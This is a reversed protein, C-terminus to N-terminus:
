AWNSDGLTIYWNSIDGVVDKPIDPSQVLVVLVRKWSWARGLGLRGSFSDTQKTRLMMLVHARDKRAQQMAADVLLEAAESSRALIDSIWGVRLNNSSHYSLICYGSLVGHDDARLGICTEAPTSYRWNLYDKGRVVAVQFGHKAEQWLEDFESGFALPTIRRVKISETQGRARARVARFETLMPNSALAGVLGFYRLLNAWTLKPSYGAVSLPRVLARVNGVRTFQLYKLAGRATPEELSGPPAYMMAVDMGSKEILYRHMAIYIGQRQFRPHVMSDGPIACRISADGIKMVLPFLANVGVLEGDIECVVGVAKGAPNELYKWRLYDMKTLPGNYAATGSAFALKALAAIRQLDDDYRIPRLSRPNAAEPASSSM